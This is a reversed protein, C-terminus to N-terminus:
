QRPDAWHPADAPLSWGMPAPEAPAAALVPAAPELRPPAEARLALWVLVAVIGGGAVLVVVWWFESAESIAWAVLYIMSRVGIFLLPLGMTLVALLISRFLIGHHKIGSKRDVQTKFGVAGRFVSLFILAVTLVFWIVAGILLAVAAISIQFGYTHILGESPM